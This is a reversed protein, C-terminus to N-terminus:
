VVVGVHGAQCSEGDVLPKVCESWKWGPELHVETFPIDGLKISAANTKPSKKTVVPSDFSKKAASIM